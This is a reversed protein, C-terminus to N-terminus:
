IARKAKEKIYPELNRQAEALKIELPEVAKQQSPKSEGKDAETELLSRKAELIKLNIANVETEGCTILFDLDVDPFWSYDDFGLRSYTMFIRAHLDHIFDPHLRSLRHAIIWTQREVQTEPIQITHLSGLAAAFRQNSEPILTGLYFNDSFQGGDRVGALLRRARELTADNSTSSLKLDLPFPIVPAVTVEKNRISKCHRSIVLAYKVNSNTIFNGQQGTIALPITHLVDGQALSEENPVPVTIAM